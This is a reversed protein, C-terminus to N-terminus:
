RGEAVVTVYPYNKLKRLFTEKKETPVNISYTGKPLRYRRLHVNAHRFTRYPVEMCKAFVNVHTEHDLEVTIESLVVPKYLAKEDIYIGFRDRNTIIEKLAAIRFIYRETEDALYLEFFDRSEQNEMAERLRAAGANYAAMAIFWDGFEGHLRKLHTLASRTAKRINYREDIHDNVFLGERKGTEKIFQWLGAANARSLARPNLYSENIVLYILDPSLGMRQIEANILQYYMLYRKVLVTMLGKNELFQFFEREFRERVDDKQLPIKKDCLVFPDPLYELTYIDTENRLRVVERELDSVRKELSPAKKLATQADAKSPLCAIFIGMAFVIGLMIFINKQLRIQGTVGESPKNERHTRNTLSL